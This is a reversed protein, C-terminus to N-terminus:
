ASVRIRDLSRRVSNISAAKDRRGAAKERHNNRSERMEAIKAKYADIKRDQADAIAERIGAPFKYIEAWVAEGAAVPTLGVVAARRGVEKGVAVTKDKATNFRIEFRSYAESLKETVRNRIETARNEIKERVADIRDKAANAGIQLLIDPAALRNVWKTVKELRQAGVTEATELTPRESNPEM